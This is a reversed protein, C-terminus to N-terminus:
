GFNPGVFIMHLLPHPNHVMSRRLEFSGRALTRLRRLNSRPFFPYMSRLKLRGLGSHRGSINTCATRQSSHSYPLEGTDHTNLRFNIRWARSSTSTSLYTTPSTFRENRHSKLGQDLNLLLTVHSKNVAPEREKFKSSM